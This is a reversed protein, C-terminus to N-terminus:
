AIEHIRTQRACRSDNVVVRRGFVDRADAVYLVILFPLASMFHRFASGFDPEFLAQVASFALVAHACFRVKPLKGRFMGAISLYSACCRFIVFALYAPSLLVLEVPFCIRIFASVRNFLFGAASGDEMIYRIRSNTDDALYDSRGINIVDVPIHSFLAYVAVMALVYTVAIPRVRYSFVHAMLLMGAFLLFYERVFLGYLVLGLLLGALSRGLSSQRLTIVSLSALAFPVLDKNIAAYYPSYLVIMIFLMGIGSAKIPLGYCRVIWALLALYISGFATNAVMWNTDFSTGYSGLEIGCARMASFIPAYIWATSSFSGGFIELQPDTTVLRAGDVYFKAHWVIPIILEFAFGLLALTIFIAPVAYRRKVRL